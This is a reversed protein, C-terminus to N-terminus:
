LRLLRRMTAGGPFYGIMEALSAPFLGRLVLVYVVTFVVWSIPLSAAAPLSVPIQSNALWTAAIALASAAAAPLLARILALLTLGQTRILLTILITAVISNSVAAGALYAKVGIPIFVVMTLVMLVFAFADSRLCSRPQNNALLFSYAAAGISVALGSAMALPVLPIVADWKHGYLLRVLSAAELSFFAGIPLALWVISRLALGSIRQFQASQSEARTIIPFLASTAQQSIRGCFMTALGEARGFVGLGFFQGQQTILSNQLLTRGGNLANSSARQLGFVLSARYNGYHWKWVPRWGDGVFLDLAAVTSALLGPVILSYVGAGALAMGIGSGVSVLIAGFQLNRLRLWDHRRELMKTRLDAPVSLLFGVSAVHLLPQLQAYQDNFRLAIAVGNTVLFLASNIAMGATFHQQYDVDKESRMQLVHAIVHQFSPVGIFAVLTSAMAAAGYITPDLLRALVLMQGFQLLDRFVNVGVSWTMAQKASEGLSKQALTM